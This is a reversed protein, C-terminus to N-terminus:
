QQADKTFFFIKFTSGAGKESEVQINGGLRRMFDYCLALGLGNGKEGNTGMSSGVEMNFIGKILKSNIGVGRDVVEIVKQNKFEFAHVLIQSGEFSYKIANTILNRLVIRVIGANSHLKFNEECDFSLTIQKKTTSESLEKSLDELVPLLLFDGKNLAENQLQGQAWQLVSSLLENLREAKEKMEPVYKEIDDKTFIRQQFMNLAETVSQIPSRLDHSVIAFIKNKFGNLSELKKAQSNIKRGRVIIISLMIIAIVLTAILLQIIIQRQGALKENIINKEELIRFNFLRQYYALLELENVSTISQVSDLYIEHLLQQAHAEKFEGLAAYCKSMIKHSQYLLEKKKSEKALKLAQTAAEFARRENGKVLELEALLQNNRILGRKSGYLSANELSLSVVSDASVLDGKKFLTEAINFYFISFLEVYSSDQYVKASEFYYMASDYIGIQQFARGINNHVVFLRFNDEFKLQVFLEKKYYNIADFNLDASNYLNGFSSFNTALLREYKNFKCIEISQQLYELSEASNGLSWQSAAIRHLSVAKLSDDDIEQALRYAENSIELSQTPNDYILIDAKEILELFYEKAGGNGQALSSISLKLLIFLFTTFRM